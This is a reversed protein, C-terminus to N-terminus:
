WWTLGVVTGRGSGSGDSGYKLCLEPWSRTTRRILLMWSGIVLLILYGRCDMRLICTGVVAATALTLRM